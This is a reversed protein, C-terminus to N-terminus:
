NYIYKLTKTGIRNPDGDFSSIYVNCESDSSSLSVTFGFELDGEEGLSVFLFM